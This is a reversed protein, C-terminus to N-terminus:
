RGGCLNSWVEEANSAVSITFRAVLMICNIAGSALYASVDDSQSAELVIGSVSILHGIYPTGNEAPEGGVTRASKHKQFRHAGAAYRLVEDFKRSLFEM